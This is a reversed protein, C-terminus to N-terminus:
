RPVVKLKALTPPPENKRWLSKPSHTPAMDIKGKCEDVAYTTLAYLTAKHKGGQRSKEIVGKEVLEHIAKGLTDKSKWGRKRMLTWAACLDGNNDGRYQSLLDLLLKCAKASLSTATQSRLFVHAM